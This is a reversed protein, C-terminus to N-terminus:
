RVVAWGLILGIYVALAYEHTVFTLIAKSLKQEEYKM